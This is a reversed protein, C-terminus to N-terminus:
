HAAATRSRMSQRREGARFLGRMHAPVSVQSSSHQAWMAGPGHHGELPAHENAQRDCVVDRGPLRQLGNAAGCAVLRGAHRPGAAAARAAQGRADGAKARQLQQEALQAVEVAEPAGAVPRGHGTSAGASSAGYDELSRLRGPRM